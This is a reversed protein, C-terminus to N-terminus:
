LIRACALRVLLPSLYVECLVGVLLVAVCAAFRLFWAADYVVPASRRGKGFSLLALSISNRFSPVALWFYCPLTILCRLGLVAVALLIGEKGYAGAFCCASFSLFFGFAASVLPLLLAGISAFGLLFAMLPYRFYILLAPLFMGTELSESIQFFESLYRTLEQDNSAKASFVQGLIVGLAFCLSLLVLHVTQREETRRGLPKNM